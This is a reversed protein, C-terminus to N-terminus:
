VQDVIMKYLGESPDGGQFSLRLPTDTIRSAMARNCAEMVSATENM